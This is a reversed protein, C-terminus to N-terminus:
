PPSKSLQRMNNRDDNPGTTQRACRPLSSVAESGRAPPSFIPASDSADSPCNCTRSSRHSSVIILQTVSFAWVRFKGDRHSTPNHKFEVLCGACHIVLRNIDAPIETEWSSIDPPIEGSLALAHALEILQIARHGFLCFQFIRQGYRTDFPDSGDLSQLIREYYRELERPLAKLFELARAPPEGKKLFRVLEDVVLRVWLFTGDAKAIIYDEIQHRFGEISRFVPKHLFARTYCEIDAQNKDQLRIRYGEYTSDPLDNISRSALFVKVVSESDTSASLDCLFQVIDARDDDDSEDMADIILLLKRKEPHKVCARLIDKLTGYTWIRPPCPPESPGGLDRYAQQFHIFFSEDTNLIDYLLGQVMNRHNRELESDRHSYFFKAVIAGDKPLNTFYRALTSKGSGPKGEIFLLSSCESSDWDRYEQCEGFWGFTAEDHASIKEFRTNHVRLSKLCDTILNALCTQNHYTCGTTTSEV